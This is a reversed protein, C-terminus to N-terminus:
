HPESDLLVTQSIFSHTMGRPRWRREHQTRFTKKSGRPDERARFVAEEGGVMNVLHNRLHGERFGLAGTM